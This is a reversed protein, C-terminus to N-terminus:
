GSAAMSPVCLIVFLGTTLSPFISTLSMIYRERLKSWLTM